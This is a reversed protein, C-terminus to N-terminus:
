GSRISSIRLGTSLGFRGCFATTIRGRDAPRAYRHFEFCYRDHNNPDVVVTIERGPGAYQIIEAYMPAHNDSHGTVRCDAITGQALASHRVFSVTRVADYVGFLLPGLGVVLFVLGVQRLAKAISGPAALACHDPAAFASGAAPAPAELPRSTQSSEAPGGPDENLGSVTFWLGYAFCAVFFGGMVRVVTTEALLMALGIFLFLGLLGAMGMFFPMVDRQRGSKWATKMDCLRMSVRSEVAVGTGYGLQIQGQPQMEKWVEPGARLSKRGFRVLAWAMGVVLTLGSLVALVIALVFM